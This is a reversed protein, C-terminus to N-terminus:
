FGDDKVITMCSTIRKDFMSPEVSQGTLYASVACGAQVRVFGSAYGNPFQESLIAVHTDLRHLWYRVPKICLTSSYLSPTGM